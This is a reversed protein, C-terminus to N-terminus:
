LRAHRKRRINVADDAWDAALAARQMLTTISEEGKKWGYAEFASCSISLFAEDWFQEETIRRKEREMDSELRKRGAAYGRSYHRQAETKSLEGM